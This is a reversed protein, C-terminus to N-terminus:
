LSTPTLVIRPHTPGGVGAVAAAVVVGRTM